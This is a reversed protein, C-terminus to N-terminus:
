FDLKKGNLTLIKLIKVLTQRMMKRSVVRDIFGHDQLFEATQFGKPLIQNITQKIVRPGAFGVLSQPEAIIIDGLSGYSAMVGAMSPDTLVTIYPISTEDLRSLVACTKSMQMLSLIGEQMRAGGSAVFILTPYRNELSREFTRAIKEGIVSGMSGGIFSFDMIGINVPINSIRGTGCVVGEKNGTKKQAQRTRETYDKSDHFKLPNAPSLNADHESFSDEDLTYRIRESPSIKFHHDCIPCVKLNRSLDVELIMESCQPCATCLNEPVETKKQQSFKVKTYKTKKFFM